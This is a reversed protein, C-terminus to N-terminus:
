KPRTRRDIDLTRQPSPAAVVRSARTSGPLLARRTVWIPVSVLQANSTSHQANSTRREYLAAVTAENAREGRPFLTGGEHTLITLWTQL